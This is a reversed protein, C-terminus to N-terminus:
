GLEAVKRIRELTKKTDLHSRLFSDHALQMVMQEHVHLEENAPWAAPRWKRFLFAMELLTAQLCM